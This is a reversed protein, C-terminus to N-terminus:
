IFNIYLYIYLNYLSNSTIEIVLLSNFITKTQKKFFSKTNKCHM